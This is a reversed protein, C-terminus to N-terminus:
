AGGSRKMYFARLGEPDPRGGIAGSALLAAVREDSLSLWEALVDRTDRDFLPAASRSDIPQGDIELPVRLYPRTGTVPHELSEIAGRMAPRERAEAFHLVEHAAAGRAELAALLEDADHAGSTAALDDCAVDSAIAVWRADRTRFVGSTALGPLRNGEREVERGQAAAVLAEGLQLWLVEQHSLDVEGGRGCRDRRELMSLAAIGAHLGAVPDPYYTQSIRAGAEPPGFLSAFGGMGEVITGYGAAGRYPGSAGLAPMHVLIIRPNVRSLEAYDLGLNPLVRATLNAIVVDACGVLELFVDRGDPTTLDISCHRKNRNITNFATSIEVSLEGPERGLHPAMQGFPSPGRWGDPRKASEVKVVEAGLAALLRGAFPGAWAQTLELVRVGSLPTRTPAAHQPAERAFDADASGPAALVRSGGDVDPAIWPRVAARVTGGDPLQVDGLFGRARTHPDHLLDAAGLVMGLAWGGELAAAFIQSRTRERYWPEITKWLEQHNAGRRRRSRFREDAVLDPRGYVQCQAVWDAPRISGPVVFGDACPLAGSPYVDLQHAGGPPDRLEAQLNRAWSAEVGSAMAHLWAVDVHRCGPVRLALLAAAAAYAGAFYQAQYGPFRLPPGGPDGTTAMAGSAAQVLLEDAVRAPPGRFGWPSTTVWVAGEATPLDASELESAVRGDLVVDAGALARELPVASSIRQKGTNLHVELPSADVVASDPERKVVRAGLMALLRGAYPGAIGTALELVCLGELPGSM